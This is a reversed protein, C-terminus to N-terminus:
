KVPFELQYLGLELLVPNMGELTLRFKDSKVSATLDVQRQIGIDHGEYACVWANGDWYELRFAYTYRNYFTANRNAYQRLYFSNVTVPSAFDLKLWAADGSTEWSTGDDGDVAAQGNGGSTTVTAERAYNIGKQVTGSAIVPEPTGDVVIKIVTVYPDQAIGELSIELMDGNTTYRVTQGGDLVRMDRIRNKLAPIVIKGNEPFEFLHVYLAGDKTTTQIYNPLNAYYAGQAGRISESNKDMWKGIEAFIERTKDPIKGLSDPGFDLLMTGNKATIEVLNEVLTKPNKWYTKFSNYGWSDNPTICIEWDYDLSTEPIETEIINYDGNGRDNKGVRDDIILSPKLTRVFRYIEDGDAVTWWHPFEGDFWFLDPDYLEVIERLQGKMRTKYEAKKSLDPMSNGFFGEQTVDHWDAFSFYVGFKIGQQKCERSLAMMPDDGKYDGFTMLCYDKFERIKTDYMSFGEHHRSTFVLYEQGTSKAMKVIDKADFESPNFPRAAGEAYVVKNIGMDCMIWESNGNNLRGDWIGGLYSYAGLHIFQGFNCDRWWKMRADKEAATETGNYASFVFWDIHLEADERFSLIVEHVGTVRKTLETYCEVFVNPDTANSPHVTAIRNEEAVKDIYVDINKASQNSAASILMLLTNKDGNGFDVDRYSLMDGAKFGGGFSTFDAALTNPAATGSLDAKTYAAAELVQVVPDFAPAPPEDPEDPNDPEDPEDPEDPNDPEGPFRDIREVAYQLILRADTTDVKDNGDVDALRSQTANLTIKEVAAQLALRADTTDVRGDMNVDGTKADVATLRYSAGATTEFELTDADPSKTPVVRGQADLLQASGLRDGHLTCTRATPATITVTQWQGNAWILDVQMDGVAKLGTISGSKWLDPLAPLLDITDTTDSVSLLMDTMGATVDFAATVSPVRGSDMLPNGAELGDALLAYAQEADGARAWLGISQTGGNDFSAPTSAVQKLANLAM